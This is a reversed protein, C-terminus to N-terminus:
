KHQTVPVKLLEALEAPIVLAEETNGQLFPKLVPQGRSAGVEFIIHDPYLLNKVSAGKHPEPSDYDDKQIEIFIPPRDRWVTERLGELAKTEYGEVDMKLLTIPPLQNAAFFDDGRVVQVPLVESSANDPLMDGLTGTGQNAGTPPHFTGTENRDGLAVPFITVNTVGAHQLKRVMEERVVAFPEFSFVHDAHPSMFLTHHGINAGVDFFNVPKGSARLADAIAGLLRIEHLQFAGYYFVSWDIFNTMKGSYSQGFFDTKFLTSSQHDPHSFARLIRDRGRLWQQRGVFRLMQQKMPYM